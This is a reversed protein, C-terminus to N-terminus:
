GEFHDEDWSIEDQGGLEKWVEHWYKWGKIPAKLLVKGDPSLFGVDDAINKQHGSINKVGDCNTITKTKDESILNDHEDFVRGIHYLRIQEPDSRKGDLKVPNEGEGKMRLIITCIRITHETQSV